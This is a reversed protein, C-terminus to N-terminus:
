LGLSQSVMLRDELSDEVYRDKSNEGKWRGHRKFMRDRIGVNAARSAGGSRFSHITFRHVNPVFEKLRLRIIENVRTYSLGKHYHDNAVAKITFTNFHTM